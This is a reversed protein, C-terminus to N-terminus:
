CYLKGTQECHHNNLLMKVHLYNRVLPLYWQSDGWITGYGFFHHIYEKTDALVIYDNGQMINIYSIEIWVAVKRQLARISLTRVLFPQFKGEHPPSFHLFPAILFFPRKQHSAHSLGTSYGTILYHLTEWKYFICKYKVFLTAYVLVYWKYCPWHLYRRSSPIDSSVSCVTTTRNSSDAVENTCHGAADSNSDSSSTYNYIEQGNVDETVWLRDRCFISSWAFKGVAIAFIM